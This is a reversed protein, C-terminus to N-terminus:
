FTKGNVILQYESLHELFDSARDYGWEKRLSRLMDRELELVPEYVARGKQVIRVIRKRKDNPDPRVSVCKMKRLREVSQSVTMPDFRSLRGLDGQSLPHKPDARFLHGLLDVGCSFAAPGRRKSDAFEECLLNRLTMKAQVLPLIIEFMGGAGFPLISEDSNERIKNM